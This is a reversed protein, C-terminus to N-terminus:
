SPPGAAGPGAATYGERELARSAVRGWPQRGARTVGERERERERERVQGETSLAMTHTSRAARSRQWAPWGYGWEPAWSVTFGDVRRVRNCAWVTGIRVHGETSLAMNHFAIAAMGIVGLVRTDYAMAVYV